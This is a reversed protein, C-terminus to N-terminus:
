IQRRGRRSLRNAHRSGAHRGRGAGACGRGLHRERAAAACDPRAGEADLEWQYDVFSQKITRRLDARANWRARGRTMDRALRAGFMNWDIAAVKRRDSLHRSQHYFMGALEFGAARVSLLGAMIYNGQNPDFRRLENGMVVEYNATFTARGVGYDVVDIEGGFDADWAFRPDDDGDLREAALHFDFRPLFQVPQQAFAPVAGAIMALVMLVRQRM